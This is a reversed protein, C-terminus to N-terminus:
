TLLDREIQLDVFKQIALAVDLGHTKNFDVWMNNKNWWLVKTKGGDDTIRIPTSMVRKNFDKMCYNALDLELQKANFTDIILGKEVDVLIYGVRFFQEM